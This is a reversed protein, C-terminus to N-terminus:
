LLKMEHCQLAMFLKPFFLTITELDAEMFNTFQKAAPSPTYNKPDLKQSFKEHGKVTVFNFKQSFKQNM